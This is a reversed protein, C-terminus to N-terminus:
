EASECLQKRVAEEITDQAAMAATRHCVDTVRIKDLAARVAAALDGFPATPYAKKRYVFPLEEDYHNIPELPTDTLLSIELRSLFSEWRPRYFDELLGQWERAAYDHLQGAGERSAWLTIQVRANWEFYAREAPTKGHRKARELWRGLLMDGDTAVIASQLDFLSLLEGGLASLAALDKDAYAQKIGAVFYWSLNSIAQRAAEALDKRYTPNGSLRDYEGLMVDLYEILAGQDVYPNPHKGWTSTSEVTLTPRACLASEGSVTQVGDLVEHCLREWAAALRPSTYGYRTSLYHTVFASLATKEGFANHLLIEYIVENCNVCEPMYGMGIMNMGPHELADFPMNLIAEAAGQFNYQGGYCFVTCFIWPADAYLGEAYNRHASLNTVIARGDPIARVMEPKPSITWGQLMWVADPDHECMKSFVRMGYEHLDIGDTIGGEHFPDVSYYHADAAGAIRRSAAYFLAAIRDFRADWPMLLAPREFGCWKGQPMIAADPYREGFDPPVMGAYGPSVTAAGFAHLRTNIRGALARREEYWSAPAGGAWGTMNMMWQWAYFAPGALFRDADRETYGLALLTDRWVGELGIPNLILNYGSLLLYDLTREWEAWTDFAYTYCFTCYNFFYRYLFRSKGVIPEGVAPPVTPLAGSVTLAGFAYGCRKRLYANFGAALAVGSPATIAIRGDRDCVEYHDFGDGECLSLVVREAYAAGAVRTILAYVESLDTKPMNKRKIAVYSDRIKM